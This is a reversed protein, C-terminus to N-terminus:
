SKPYKEYFIIKKVESGAEGFGLALLTGIKIIANEIILTENDESENRVLGVDRASIPNRAIKEVKEIMREIPRLALDNADKSFFLAGLTLVVCVYLTRGINLGATKEVTDGLCVM